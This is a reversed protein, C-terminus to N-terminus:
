MVGTNSAGDVVLVVRHVVVADVRVEACLLVQAGEGGVRVREPM